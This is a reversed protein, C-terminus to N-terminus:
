IVGVTSKNNKYLELYVIDDKHLLISGSLIDVDIIMDNPIIDSESESTARYSHSGMPKLTTEVCENMLMGEEDEIVYFLTIIPNSFLSHNNCADETNIWVVATDIDAEYCFRTPAEWFGNMFQLDIPKQRNLYIYVLLSILIVGFTIHIANNHTSM